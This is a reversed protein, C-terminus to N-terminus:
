DINKVKLNMATSMNFMYERVPCGNKDRVTQLRRRDKRQVDEGPDGDLEGHLGADRAWRDIPSPPNTRYLYCIYLVGHDTTWSLKPKSCYLSVQSWHVKSNSWRGRLSTDLDSRSPPFEHCRSKTTESVSQLSLTYHPARVKCIAGSTM